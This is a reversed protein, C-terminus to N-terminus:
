ERGRTASAVCRSRLSPTRQQDPVKGLGANTAIGPRRRAVVSRKTSRRARSVLKIENM